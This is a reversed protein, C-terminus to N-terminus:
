FLKVKIVMRGEKFEIRINEKFRPDLNKTTIEKFENETFEIVLENNIMQPKIPLGAVQAQKFLEGLIGSVM